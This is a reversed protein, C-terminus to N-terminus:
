NRPKLNIVKCDIVSAPIITSSYSFKPVMVDISDKCFPKAKAGANVRRTVVYTWKENDKEDYQITSTATVCLAVQEGTWTRNGTKKMEMTWASASVSCEKGDKRHNNTADIVCQKKVEIEVHKKCSCLREVYGMSLKHVNLDHPKQSTKRKTAACMDEITENLEEDKINKFQNLFDNQEAITEKDSKMGLEIRTFTCSISDFPPKHPPKSLCQMSVAMNHEESGLAEFSPLTQDVEAYVNISLAFM